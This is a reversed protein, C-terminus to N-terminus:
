ITTITQPANLDLFIRAETIEPSQSELSQKLEYAYQHIDSLSTATAISVSQGDKSGTNGASISSDSPSKSLDVQINVDVTVSTQSSYHVTVSQIADIKPYMLLAQQRVEHEVQAASIGTMMPAPVSSALNPNNSSTVVEDSSRADAHHDRLRKSQKPHDTENSSQSTAADVDHSHSSHGHGDEIISSPGDLQQNNLLLPCPPGFVVNPKAHVTATVGLRGGDVDGNTLEYVLYQRVREEVARTATTSLDPSTEVVVDVNAASGATRARISTVGVVDDDNLKELLTAIRTQLGENASDSLQQVSEVLIDGGTTGIMVAVLIGAAADAAPFGSMAFAISGLALISSYADSRHHWANALVVPSNLRQGVAKTIRFLWEKSLISLGAMFLALPGPVPITAVSGVSASRLTQSSLIDLLQQNSHWGVSGATLLLTLSLFLSGIAEFKSHGYPHDEDPPLRAVSVSWLTIFDSVLDSLSHGADAILVSSNQTIGVFLKGISLLLNVVVGIWTVRDADRNDAGISGPTEVAAASGGASSSASWVATGGGGHHRRLGSYFSKLRLKTNEFTSRLQKTSDTLVWSIGSLVVFKTWHSSSSIQLSTMTARARAAAGFSAATTVSSKYQNWLPPGFTACWCIMIWAFKRILDSRSPVQFQEQWTLPM